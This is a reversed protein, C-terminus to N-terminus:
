WIDMLSNTIPTGSLLLRYDATEALTMVRKTRKASPSKVLHCEDCVLIEPRWQRLNGFLKENLLSEYNTVFVHDAPAEEADWAFNEFVELKKTGPGQLCHTDDGC